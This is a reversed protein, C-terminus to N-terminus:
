GAKQRPDTTVPVLNYDSLVERVYKATFKRNHSYNCEAVQDALDCIQLFEGLALKRRKMIAIAQLVLAVQRQKFRVYKTLARLLKRVQMHGEIRIESMRDNRKYIYGAGIMRQIEALQDHYRSDQYLVIITKPRFKFRLDKNFRFQLLISGDGDLLGALYARQQANLLRIKGRYQGKAEVSWLIISFSKVSKLLHTM